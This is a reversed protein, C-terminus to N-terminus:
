YVKMYFIIFYLLKLSVKFEVAMKGTLIIFYYGIKNPRLFYSFYLHLPLSSFYWSLYTLLIHKNKM